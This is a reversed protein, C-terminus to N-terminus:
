CGDTWENRMEWLVDITIFFVIANVEARRAQKILYTHTYRKCRSPLIRIRVEFREPVYTRVRVLSRVTEKGRKVRYSRTEVAGRNGKVLLLEVTVQGLFLRDDVGYLMRVIVKHVSEILSGLHESLRLHIGHRTEDQNLVHGFIPVLVIMRHGLM